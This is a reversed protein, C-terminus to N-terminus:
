LKQSCRLGKLLIYCGVSSVQAQLRAKTRELFVQTGVSNPAKITPNILSSSRSVHM